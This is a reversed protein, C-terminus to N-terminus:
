EVDQNARVALLRKGQFFISFAQLTSAAPPGIRDPIVNGNQQDIFGRGIWGSEGGWIKLRDTESCANKQGLLVCQTLQEPM